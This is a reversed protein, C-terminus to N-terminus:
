KRWWDACRSGKEETEMSLENAKEVFRDYTRPSTFYCWEYPDFLVHLDNCVTRRLDDRMRCMPYYRVNVGIGYEELYDIAEELYPQVQRLDAIIDKAESMHQKWAHHPNFNIFNVIRANWEIALEAIESLETYNFKNIVTNFRLGVVTPSANITELFRMQTKRANRSQVLRNHTAENGHVSLLWDDVGYDILRLTQDENVIGNTIVCSRIGITRGCRIAEPLFKLMTPEGGTIDAYTNGRLKARDYDSKIEEFSKYGEYPVFRHYCFSCRINCVRGIDIFCRKTIKPEFIDM